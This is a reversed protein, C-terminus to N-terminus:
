TFASVALEQAENELVGRHTLHPRHSSPARSVLYKLQVAVVALKHENEGM